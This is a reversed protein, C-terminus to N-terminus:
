TERPLQFETILGLKERCHECICDNDHDVVYLSDLDDDTDVFAGCEDCCMMSM